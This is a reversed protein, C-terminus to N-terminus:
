RRAWTTPCAAARRQPTPSTATSCCSRHARVALAAANVVVVEGGRPAGARPRCAPRAKAPCRRRSSARCWCATAGDGHDVCPAPERGRGRQGTVAGSGNLRLLQGSAELAVYAASGDPAFAMGFPQARAAPDGDAGGGAHTPSVVSISARAAQQHGLHATPRWRSAHAARRRGRDRGAQRPHRRRVRQRQRQGPEGGVRACQRRRPKRARRQAFARGRRRSPAAYIAQTFFLTEVRGLADTATVTVTYLGPAAYRTRAARRATARPRRATASTGATTVGAAATPRPRSRRRQRRCGGAAGAGPQHGALRARHGCSARSAVGGRGDSVQRRRQLQRRHHRAAILGTGAKSAWARRCAPPPYSLVDGDPDHGSLALSRRAPWAARTPWRRAADAAPEAAAAHVDGDERGRQRRATAFNGGAVTGLQHRRHSHLALRSRATAAAAARCTASAASRAGEGWTSPSPTRTCRTPPRGNRTGSRRPM